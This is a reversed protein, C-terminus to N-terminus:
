IHVVDMRKDYDIKVEKKPRLDGRSRIETWIRNNEM